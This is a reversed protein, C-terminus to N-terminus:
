LMVRIIEANIDKKIFNVYEMLDEKVEDETFIIVKNYGIEKLVDAYPLDDDGLGYQNNLNDKLDEAKLNNDYRDYPILMIFGKPKIKELKLGNNILQSINNKDGIIGFPHFLLNVNLIPKMCYKNNLILALNLIESLPLDIIIFNNENCNEVISNLLKENFNEMTDYLIKSNFDKVTNCFVKGNYDKVTDNVIKVNHENINNESLIFDDYTQLSVFPTSRFFAVFPGLDAKWMRYLARLDIERLNMYYRGKMYLLM